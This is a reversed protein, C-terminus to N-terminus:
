RSLVEAGKYFFAAWVPISGTEGSLCDPLNALLGLSGTGELSRAIEPPISGGVKQNVTLREALQAVFDTIKPCLFLM